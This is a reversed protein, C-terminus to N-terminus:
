LNISKIELGILNRLEEVLLQYRRRNSAENQNKEESGELIKELPNLSNLNNGSKKKLKNRSAKKKSRKKKKKKSAVVNDSMKSFDNLARTEEDLHPYVGNIFDISDRKKIGGRGSISTRGIRPLPQNAGPVQKRFFNPEDLREEGFFYDRGNKQQLPSMSGESSERRQSDDFPEQYKNSEGFVSKKPSFNEARLPHDILSSKQSQSRQSDNPSSEEQLIMGHLFSERKSHQARNLITSLPNIKPVLDQEFGSLKGSDTTFEPRFRQRRSIDPSKQVPLNLRLTRIPDLEQKKGFDKMQYKIQLM